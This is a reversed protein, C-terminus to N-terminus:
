TKAYRVGGMATSILQSTTMPSLHLVEYHFYVNTLTIVVPGASDTEVCRLPDELYLELQVRQSFIGMPLPGSLFLGALLPMMYDNAATAGWTNREAQTGYGYVEGLVAGVDPERYMEFLSSHLRGYERIDELEVGTTLRVRNFISWVGQALRVYTAGPATITLDFAIGGRTFDIVSDNNFFFRVINDTNTAYTSAAPPLRFEKRTGPPGQKPTAFKISDPIVIPLTGLKDKNYSQNM